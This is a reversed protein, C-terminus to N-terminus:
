CHASRPVIALRFCGSRNMRQGSARILLGGVVLDIVLWAVTALFGLKAAAYIISFLEIVPMLLLLPVLLSRLM